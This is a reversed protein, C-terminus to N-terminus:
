REAAQLWAVYLVFIRTVEAYTIATRASLATGHCGGWNRTVGDYPRLLVYVHRCGSGASAVSVTADPPQWRWSCKGPLRLGGDARSLVQVNGVVVVAVM